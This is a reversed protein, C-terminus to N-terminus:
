NSGIWPGGKFAAQGFSTGRSIENEADPEQVRKSDIAAETMSGLLCCLAALMLLLPLCVSLSAKSSTRAALALLVATPLHKACDDVSNSQQPRTLRQKTNVSQPNNVSLLKTKKKTRGGGGSKHLTPFLSVFREVM